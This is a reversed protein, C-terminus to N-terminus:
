ARGKVATAQASSSVQQMLDGFSGIGAGALLEMGQQVREADGEADGAIEIVAQVVELLPGAKAQSSSCSPPPSPSRTAKKGHRGGIWDGADRWRCGLAHRERICLCSLGAHRKSLGLLIDFGDEAFLLSAAEM